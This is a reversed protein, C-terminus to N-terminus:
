DLTILRGEWGTRTVLLPQVPGFGRVQRRGQPVLVLDPDAALRTATGPDTMVTGPQALATLRSALNVTPGFVDGLSHLVPGHAIGVRVDPLVADAAMAESLSLAIIAGVTPTVATFLVEDGVTKVVRGDGAAVVDSATAEFRQVLRILDSPPLRRSLRTYSVLDAFGVTVESSATGDLGAGGALRTVAAAMQRRWSYVLLQELEQTLEELHHMAVEINDSGPRGALHEALAEVQWSVLRETSQGLARALAIATPEDILGSRVLGVTRGLAAADADTFVVDEDTVNPFGLARWLKRASLLSVGVRHAVERRRLRRPGGLLRQELRVAVSRRRAAGTGGPLADDGPDPTSM